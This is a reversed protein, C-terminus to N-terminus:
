KGWKARDQEGAKYKGRCILCYKPEELGKQEYFEQEEATWVFEQHCDQCQIIKDQKMSEGGNM